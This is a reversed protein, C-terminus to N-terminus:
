DNNPVQDVELEFCPFKISSYHDDELDFSDRQDPLGQRDAQKDEPIFRRKKVDTSKM